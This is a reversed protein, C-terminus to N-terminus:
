TRHKRWDPGLSALATRVVTPLTKIIIELAWKGRRTINTLTAIDSSQEAFGFKNTGAWRVWPFTALLSSKGRNYKRMPFLGPLSADPAAEEEEVAPSDVTEEEAGSLGDERVDDAWGVSDGVDDDSDGDGPFSEAETGEHLGVRTGARKRRL